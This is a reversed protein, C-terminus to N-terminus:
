KSWKRHLNVGHGSWIHRSLGYLADVAKHRPDHPHFTVRVCNNEVYRYILSYICLYIGTLFNPTQLINELLFYFLVLFREM